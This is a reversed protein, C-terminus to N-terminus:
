QIAGYDRWTGAAGATTCVKGIYPIAGGGATPTGYLAIQGVEWYHGGPLASAEPFPAGNILTNGILRLHTYTQYNYDSAQGSLINDKIVYYATCTLIGTTEGVRYDPFGSMSFNNGTIWVHLTSSDSLYLSADVAHTSNLHSVTTPSFITNGQVYLNNSTAASFVIAAKYTANFVRDYYFNNGNCIAKGGNVTALNVMVNKLTNNVIEITLPSTGITSILGMGGFSTNANLTCNFTNNSVTITSLGSPDTSHKYLVYQDTRSANSSNLMGVNGSIIVEKCLYFTSYCANTANKVTNGTITANFTGEVDIGCDYCGENYNGLIEVGDGMSGWIAGGYVKNGIIKVNSAWRTNGVDSDTSADGGWFQITTNKLTNNTLTLDKIFTTNLGPRGPESPQITDLIITNGTAEVGYSINSATVSSYGSSIIPSTGNTSSNLEFLGLNHAYNNLFKINSFGFGSFVCLDQIVTTAIFRLGEIIINDVYNSPGYGACTFMSIGTAPTWQIIAGGDGMLKTNAPVTVCSRLDYYGGNAATFVVEGGNTVAAAIAASCNTTGSDAKAGWWEPYKKGAYVVKGTGTCIFIQYPGAEIPGNITFTTTASITCNAGKQPKFTCTAPITLGDAVYTGAPVVLTAPTTSITAIATSLTSCGPSIGVIYTDPSPGVGSIYALDLWHSTGNGIKLKGTDTEFGPEGTALIPNAAVWETVPGRRLKITTSVTSTASAELVGAALMLTAVLIRLLAAM